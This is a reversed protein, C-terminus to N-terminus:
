WTFICFCLIWSVVKHKIFRIFCKYYRDKNWLCSVTCPNCFIWLYVIFKFCKQKVYYSFVDAKYYLEALLGVTYKRLYRCKHGVKHRSAVSISSTKHLTYPQMVKLLCRINRKWIYLIQLLAYLKIPLYTTYFCHIKLRKSYM